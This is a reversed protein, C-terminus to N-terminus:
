TRVYCWVRHRICRHLSTRRVSGTPRMQPAWWSVDARDAASDPAQRCSPLLLPNPHNTVLCSCLLEMPASHPCAARGPLGLVERRGFEVRSHISLTFALGPSVRFFAFTLCSSLDQSGTVACRSPDSRLALPHDCV